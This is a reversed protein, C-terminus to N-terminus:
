GSTYREHFSLSLRQFHDFLRKRLELLIKQGISGTMKTFQYDAAGALAGSLAFATVILLLRTSGRGDLMRPIGDDIAMKVLFPGALACFNYVSIVAISAYVRRMHPKLLSILLVKSRGRLFAGLSSTVNDIDEAAVGRWDAKTM